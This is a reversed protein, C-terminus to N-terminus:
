VLELDEVYRQMVYWHIEGSAAECICIFGSHQMTVSEEVSPQHGLDIVRVSKDHNFHYDFFKTVNGGLYENLEAITSYKKM